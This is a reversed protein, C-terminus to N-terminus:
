GDKRTPMAAPGKDLCANRENRDAITGCDTMSTPPRGNDARM